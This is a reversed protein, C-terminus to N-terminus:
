GINSIIVKSAPQWAMVNHPSQASSVPKCRRPTSAAKHSTPASILTIPPRTIGNKM